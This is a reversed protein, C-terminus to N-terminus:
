ADTSEVEEFEGEVAEPSHPEQGAFNIYRHGRVDVQVKHLPNWKDPRRAKLVELGLRGDDLASEMVSTEIKDLVDEQAETVALNFDPDDEMWNRIIAMPVKAGLAAQHLEM